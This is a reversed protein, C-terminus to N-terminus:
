PAIPPIIIEEIKGAVELGATRGTDQLLIKKHRKDTLLVDLRATMSEEIRGEMMGRIPSALETATDRHAIVSLTYRSNELAIEVRGPYVQCKRLRTRNYTTFRILRDGLWIGAIFGVFSSRLWPIKAVSCKLSTGPQSFHNSQMWCYASPFSHGWDKEMYGRGGTFDIQEAGIMLQGSLSHDMSVIGHYCEMFPVFSFPGMIGPSYFPKPWGVTNHFQVAGSVGPLDLTLESLSLRNNGVGISFRHPTASFQEALFSHYVATKNKGDLVQIFAQQKGNLDMAIGPIFAFAKQEDATVLKCYWGEFFNKRKAWGHYQEPNFFASLRRFM